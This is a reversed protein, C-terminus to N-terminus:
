DQPNSALREDSPLSDIRNVGTFETSFTMERFVNWPNGAVRPQQVTFKSEDRFINWRPTGPVRARQGVGAFETSFTMERFVNWRNGPVRPQQVMGADHVQIQIDTEQLTDNAADSAVVPLAGAAVLALTGIAIISIRTKRM